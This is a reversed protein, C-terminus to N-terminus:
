LGGGHTDGCSLPGGVRAILRLTPIVEDEEEVPRRSHEIGAEHVGKPCLPMLIRGCCGLTRSLVKAEEWVLRRRNHGEDVRADMAARVGPGEMAAHCLACLGAVRGELSLERYPAGELALM